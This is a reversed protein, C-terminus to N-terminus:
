ILSNFHHTESKYAQEVAKTEVEKTAVVLLAMRLRMHGSTSCMFCKEQISALAFILLYILYIDAYMHFRSAYVHLLLFNSSDVLGKGDCYAYM